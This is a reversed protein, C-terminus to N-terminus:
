PNQEVKNTQGVGHDSYTNRIQQDLVAIRSDIEAEKAQMENELAANTEAQARHLSLAADVSVSRFKPLLLQQAPTLTDLYMEHLVEPDTTDVYINPTPGVQEFDALLDEAYLLEKWSDLVETFNAKEQSEVNKNKSKDWIENLPMVFVLNSGDTRGLLELDAASGTYGFPMAGTKWLPASVDSVTGTRGDSANTIVTRVGVELFIPDMAEPDYDNNPFYVATPTPLEAAALTKSLADYWSPFSAPSGVNEYKVCLGWGDALLTRIQEASLKNYYGPVEIFSLPLVGVIDRSRMVPWVDTYIQADLTQFLIEVTGYDRMKLAYDTELSSKERLLSERERELPEVEAYLSRMREDDERETKLLYYGGAGLLALILILAVAKRFSM